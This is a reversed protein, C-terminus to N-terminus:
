AEEIECINVYYSQTLLGCAALESVFFAIKANLSEGAILGRSPTAILRGIESITHQGDVLRVIQAGLPNVACLPNGPLPRQMTLTEGDSSFVIDGWLQPRSADVVVSKWTDSAQRRDGGNGLFYGVVATAAGAGLFALFQRRPLRGDGEAAEGVHDKGLVNKVENQM